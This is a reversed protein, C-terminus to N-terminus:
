RLLSLISSDLGYASAIEEPSKDKNKEIFEAFQRNNLMMENFMQEPNGNKIMKVLEIVNSKRSMAQVIPNLM